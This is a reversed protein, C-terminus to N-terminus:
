NIPGASMANTSAPITYSSNIEKENTFFVDEGAIGGVPQADAWAMDGRLFTGSSATGSTSLKGVTVTEDGLTGGDEIIGLIVVQINNTGSPVTGTFTLLSGDITYASTDQKVGGIFVLAAASNPPIRNLSISMATGDGSFFESPFSTYNPQKGIYSM